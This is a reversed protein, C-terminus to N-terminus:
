NEFATQKSKNKGITQWLALIKARWLEEQHGYVIVDDGVSYREGNREFAEYYIRNEVEVDKDGLRKKKEQMKVPEFWVVDQEGENGEEEEEEEKEDEEGEYVEKDEEEDIEKDEEEDIEKDEVEEEGNENEEEEDIEKDEVEEESFLEDTHDGDSINPVMNNGIGEQIIAVRQEEPLNRKRKRQPTSDFTANSKVRKRGNGIRTLVETEEEFDYSLEDQSDEDEDELISM